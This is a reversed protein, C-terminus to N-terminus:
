VRIKGAEVAASAARGAEIQTEAISAFGLVFRDIRGGLRRARALLLNYGVVAPIAAFLGAATTVLAQDDAGAHARDDNAGAWTGPSPQRSRTNGTEDFSGDM